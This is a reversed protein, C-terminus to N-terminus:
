LISILASLTVIGISTYEASWGRPSFEAVLYPGLLALNGAFLLAPLLIDKPRRPM